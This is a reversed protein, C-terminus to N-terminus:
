AALGGSSHLELPFHTRKTFRRLLPARRALAITGSLSLMRQAPMLRLILTGGKGSQRLSPRKRLSGGGTDSLNTVTFTAM